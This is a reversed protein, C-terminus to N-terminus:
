PSSEPHLPLTFRFTAGPGDNSLAWIRGGHSEVISRCISLGLGMGGERTTFFPHFLGAMAAAPLGIGSDEVSVVVQEAEIGSRVVLNRPRETVPEMAQIGNVMLNIVVQQLEIRDALV